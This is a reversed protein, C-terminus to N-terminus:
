KTEANVWSLYSDNVQEPKVSIIEPIDYGSNDKIYKEVKEFNGDRTKMLLLSENEELIKGKWWYASEVPILNYCVIFRKNLLGKGIKIADNKKHVTTLIIKM